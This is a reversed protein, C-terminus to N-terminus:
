EVVDSEPRWTREYEINDHALRTALVNNVFWEFWEVYADSDIDFYNTDVFVSVRKGNLYFTAKMQDIM